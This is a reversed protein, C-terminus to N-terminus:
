TTNWHYNDKVLLSIYNCLLNCYETTFSWNSNNGCLWLFCKARWVNTIDFADFMQISIAICTWPKFDIPSFLSKARQFMMFFFYYVYSKLLLRTCKKGNARTSGIAAPKLQPALPARQQFLFIITRGIGRIQNTFYLPRVLTIILVFTYVILPTYKFSVNRLRNSVRLADSLIVFFNYSM